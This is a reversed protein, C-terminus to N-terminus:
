CIARCVLNSQFDDFRTTGAFADRLIMLRGWDGIVDLARAMPCEASACSKRRM